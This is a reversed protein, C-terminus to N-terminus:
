PSASNDGDDNLGIIVLTAVVGGLVLGETLREEDTTDGVAQAYSPGIRRVSAQGGACTSQDPVVALSGAVLPLVCGDGFSIQAAGGEMVMVRDGPQLSQADSATVFEEGQNVLVTGEQSTLTAVPEAAFAGASLLSVTVAIVFRNM